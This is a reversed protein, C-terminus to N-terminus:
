SSQALHGKITAEAKPMKNIYKETIGPWTNFYVMTISIAWTYHVPIFVVAYLYKIVNENGNVQHLNNNQHTPRDLIHQPVRWLGTMVDRKCKLVVQKDETVDM